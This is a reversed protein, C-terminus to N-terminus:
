TKQISIKNLLKGERKEERDDEGEVGGAGRNGERTDRQYLWTGGPIHRSERSDIEEEKTPSANTGCTKPSATPTLVDNEEETGSENEERGGGADEMFPARGKQLGDKSTRAGENGQCSHLLEPIRGTPNGLDGGDHQAYPFRSEAGSEEQRTAPVTLQPARGFGIRLRCIGHEEQLMALVYPVAAPNEKQLRFVAERHVVTPERKVPLSSWVTETKRPLQLQHGPGESHFRKLKGPNKQTPAKKAKTQCVHGQSEEEELSASGPDAFTKKYQDQRRMVAQETILFAKRINTSTNHGGEFGAQDTQIIKEAVRTLRQAM